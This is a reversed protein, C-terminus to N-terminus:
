LRRAVKTDIMEGTVAYVVWECINTSRDAVRELQHAADSLYIAQSMIEPQSKITVLLRPYVERFLDDVVQDQASITQALAVDRRILAELAQHLMDRALYALRLLDFFPEPRRKDGLKLNIESIERTHDSIRGLELAIELVAALFRLDGAMPQQTAVMALTDAEIEACAQSFHRSDILLRRSQGTDRCKLAEVAAILAEEVRSGLMLLKDQLRRQKQEFTSRVM